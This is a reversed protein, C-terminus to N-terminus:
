LKLAEIMTTNIKHVDYRQRVLALSAQAMRETENKTQEILLFMAEALAEVDRPPVLYGNLGNIVTERCGPADTTIIPRGTAMAELVSRPTGERYSPLVYYKCKRLAKDVQELEGLYEIQKHDIWSDLEKESIGSPNSDIPGALQFLVKPYLNKVLKAAQVYERVGKDVMLRAVMLFVHDKPIPYPPFLNLDVGSGWLRLSKASKPILGLEQFLMQDDPNQFFVLETGKLGERYLFKLIWRLLSRKWYKKGDIEVFAFGLGTILAANRLFSRRFTLIRFLRIGLGVYIVPKATYSIIYDPRIITLLYIVHILSWLDSFPNLGARSFPVTRYQVGIYNLRKIIADIRPCKPAIAFVCHGRIVLSKLLEGRFNILSPAYGGVM